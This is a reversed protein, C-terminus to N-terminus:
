EDDFESRHARAALMLMIVVNLAILVAVAAVLYTWM